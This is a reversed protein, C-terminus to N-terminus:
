EGDAPPQSPLDEPAIIPTDGVPPPTVIMEHDGVPAPKLVGDCPDLVDSLTGDAPAEKDPSVRCDVAPPPAPAEVAHAHHLPAGLSAFVIGLNFPYKRRM